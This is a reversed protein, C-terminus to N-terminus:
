ETMKPEFVLDDKYDPTNNSMKDGQPLMWLMAIFLLDVVVAGFMMLTFNVFGMQKIYDIM